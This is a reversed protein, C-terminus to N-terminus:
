KEEVRKSLQNALQIAMKQEARERIRDLQHTWYHEYTKVWDHVPKLEKANVRYLRLQRRKNVTVVGVKRLVGLHKSIAPQPMHLRLVLKGGCARQGKGPPRYTRAAESLLRMRYMPLTAARADVSMNGSYLLIDALYKERNGPFTQKKAKGLRSKTQLHCLSNDANVPANEILTNEPNRRAFRQCNSSVIM